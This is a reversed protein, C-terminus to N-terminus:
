HEPCFEHVDTYTKVVKLVSLNYADETYITTFKARVLTREKERDSILTFSETSFYKLILHTSVSFEHIHFSWNIFGRWINVDKFVYVQLAFNHLISEVFTNFSAKVSCETLNIYIETASSFYLLTSNRLPQFSTPDMTFQPIYLRSVVPPSWSDIQLYYMTFPYINSFLFSHIIINM